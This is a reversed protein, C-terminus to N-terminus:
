MSWFDKNPPPISVMQGRNYKRRTFVSENIEVTVSPGRIHLPHEIFHEACIDRLFCKWDVFAPTGM